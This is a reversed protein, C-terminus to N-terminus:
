WKTKGVSQEAADLEHMAIAFEDDTPVHHHWGVQNEIYSIGKGKITHALVLNPKGPEFPLQDFVAALDAISNGDVEKVAYGFATFKERLNGIGTVSIVPGTIQLKNHDVIVVLNDL